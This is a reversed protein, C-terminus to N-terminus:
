NSDRGVGRLRVVWWGLLEPHAEKVKERDREEVLRLAAEEFSVQSASREIRIPSPADEIQPIWKEGSRM